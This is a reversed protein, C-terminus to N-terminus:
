PFWIIFWLSALLEASIRVLKKISSVATIATTVKKTETTSVHENFLCSHVRQQVMYQIM